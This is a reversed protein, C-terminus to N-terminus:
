VRLEKEEGDERTISAVKEEVTVTEVGDLVDQDRTYITASILAEHHPFALSLVSHVLFASGFGYFWVLYSIYVAGGIQVSPNVSNAMGPLNPAVSCLMAVAARWNLGAWYRYRANPDYLAPVDIRRRKVIWYDSITIAMIPSLFIGLSAMFSLLSAASHIIKWPVMIWAGTITILVAARRLNIYKPFLSMFDHSCSLVNASINVGIQAITWSLGCFFAAARGGPGDWNSAIVVPDWIYEGYVTKSASTTIIGLM